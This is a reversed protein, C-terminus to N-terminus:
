DYKRKFDSFATILFCLPPAEVGGGSAGGSSIIIFFTYKWGQSFVTCRNHPMWVVFSATKKRSNYLSTVIGIRYQYQYQTTNTTQWFIVSPFKSFSIISVQNKRWLFAIKWFYRNKMFNSRLNKPELFQFKNNTECFKRTQNKPLSGIDGLVLVLVM